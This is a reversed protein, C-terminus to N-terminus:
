TQGSLLNDAVDHRKNELWKFRAVSSIETTIIKRMTRWHDGIPVLVTSLYGGSTLYGSMCHPRSLFIGEKDRMFELAIKPDSVAIVHVFGLRICLIKTNMEDMMRHIWRFTPKNQLMTILSGVYPLPKPGPPLPPRTRMTFFFYFILFLSLIVM